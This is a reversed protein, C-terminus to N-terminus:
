LFLWIARPEWSATGRRTVGSPCPALLILSRPGRALVSLNPLGGLTREVGCDLRRGHDLSFGAGKPSAM